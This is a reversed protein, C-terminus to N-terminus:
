ASPVHGPSCVDPSPIHHIQPNAGSSSSPNSSNSPRPTCLACLEKIQACKAHGEESVWWPQWANFAMDPMNEHQEGTEFYFKKWEKWDDSITGALYKPTDVTYHAV